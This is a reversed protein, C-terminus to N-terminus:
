MAAIFTIRAEPRIRIKLAAISYRRRPFFGSVAVGFKRYAARSDWHDPDSVQAARAPFHNYENVDPRQMAKTRVDRLGHAPQM